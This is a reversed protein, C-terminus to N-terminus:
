VIIKYRALKSTKHSPTVTQDLQKTKQEIALFRSDAIRMEKCTKIKYRKEFSLSLLTTANPPGDLSLPRLLRTNFCFQFSVGNLLYM